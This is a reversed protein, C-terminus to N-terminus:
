WWCAPATATSSRRPSGDGSGHATIVAAVVALFTVGGVQRRGLLDTARGGLLLLGGYGLIYGSVIWQLTSTTLGLDDAISTLAVGVTSVDLADLFM